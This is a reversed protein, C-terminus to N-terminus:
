RGLDSAGPCRPMMPGHLGTREADADDAAAVHRMAVVQRPDGRAGITDRDGGGRIGVEGGGLADRGRDGRPRGSGPRVAADTLHEGALGEIRDEVQRGRREVARDVALDELGAHGAEALLRERRRQGIGVREDVQGRALVQEEEDSRARGGDSRHAPERADDFVAAEAPRGEGDGMVGVGARRVPALVGAVRRRKVAVADARDEVVADVPQVLHCVQESRDRRDLRHARDRERRAPDAAAWLLAARDLHRRGSWTRTWSSNADPASPCSSALKPVSSV